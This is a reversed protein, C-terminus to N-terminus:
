SVKEEKRAMLEKDLKEKILKYEEQKAQMLDFASSILVAEGGGNCLVELLGGIDELMSYHARLLSTLHSWTDVDEPMKEFAYEDYIVGALEMMLTYKNAILDAFTIEKRRLEDITISM